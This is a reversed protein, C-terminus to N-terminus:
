AALPASDDGAALEDADRALDALEAADAPPLAALEITECAGLHNASVEAVGQVDGRRLLFLRDSGTPRYYYSRARRFFMGVPHSLSGALAAHYPGAM